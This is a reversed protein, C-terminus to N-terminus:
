VARGWDEQEGALTGQIFYAGLLENVRHWSSHRAVCVNGSEQSGKSVARHFGDVGNSDADKM